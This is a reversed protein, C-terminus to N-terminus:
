KGIMFILHANDTDPLGVLFNDPKVDRYIIGHGHFDRFIELISVGVAATCQSSFKGVNTTMMKYLSPGLLQMVLAIWNGAAGLFYIKPTYIPKRLRMYFGFELYLQKQPADKLELKVAV